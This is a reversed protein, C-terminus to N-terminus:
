KNSYKKVIFFLKEKDIPKSIFDNFGTQKIKEIEEPFSYSTQAVIPIQNNSARIKEFAQYGDMIPMKIDMLVLAIEKNELCITVAEQGDKARIIRYNLLKLLKEILLYNINDDEAVLIVEENGLDMEQFVLVPETVHEKDFQLPISFSFISGVGIQSKLVITGGLMEVYAKSIALGLGLGKNDIDSVFDVKNFRSFIQAQLDNPIGKGSDKVSFHILSNKLDSDYELVIFGEETFKIANTLLNIIVQNLKVMDTIINRNFGRKPAILKFDINKHSPVTVKVAEFTTQITTNLDVSSYKPEIIESDIKSMEVLDDIIDLLSKGSNQIINLYEKKESELLDKKKLLDSFGLIANMPTRIEHSLNMLFASKLKDSEEAKKKTKELIIRQRNNEEFLKGIYRFEGRTNKLSEIAKLNGKELVEKILKLPRKSWKIAYHNFIFISILFGILMIFLIIRTNSFDVKDKRKYLVTAITEENINKIEKQYYIGKKHLYNKGPILYEASSNSISELNQFYKDNMLKVMFFYGKPETKNKYPDESPHITAGFVFAIGEPIKVYFKINKQKYLLPFVEKPIFNKSNIVTSSAKAIFNNEIDYVDIYDAKYTDVLYTLSNDFWTIDKTKVFYVLEDWYTIESILSTYGYANLDIIANIERELDISSSKHFEKEQKQNYYFLSMFLLLFGISVFLLVFVVKSYTTVRLKKRADSFSM